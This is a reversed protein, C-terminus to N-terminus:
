IINENKSKLKNPIIIQNSWHKTQVHNKRVFKAVNLPFSRYCFKESNRIVFVWDVRRDLFDRATKFDNVLDEKKITDHEEPKFKQDSQMSPSQKQLDKGADTLLKNIDNVINNAAQAMPQVQQIVDYQKYGMMESCASNFISAKINSIPDSSIIQNPPIKLLRGEGLLDRQTYGFVKTPQYTKNLCNVVSVNYTSVPFADTGNRNIKTIIERKDWPGVAGKPDSFIDSTGHKGHFKWGLVESPLESADVVPLAIVQLIIILNLFKM